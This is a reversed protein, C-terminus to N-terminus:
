FPNFRRQRFGGRSAALTKLRSWWGQSLNRSPAAVLHTPDEAFALAGTETRTLGIDRLLRADHRPLQDAHPIHQFFLSDWDSQM